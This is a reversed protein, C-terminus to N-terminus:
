ALVTTYDLLVRTVTLFVVCCLPFPFSHVSTHHHQPSPVPLFLLLLLLLVLLFALRRHQAPISSCPFLWLLFASSFPKFYKCTHCVSSPVASHPLSTLFCPTLINNNKGTVGVYRWVSLVNENMCKIIRSSTKVPLTLPLLQGANFFWSQM